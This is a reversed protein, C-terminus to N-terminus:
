ATKTSKAVLPKGQLIAIYKSALERSDIPKSIYDNMGMSLYRERDGSMADATLAIVPVDRWPQDSARIRKITEKGDMVPMHVDLLVIDFPQEALRALAEAGNAAEVITPQMQIMFLKVVQRNVPNDDVLLVRAGFVQRGPSGDSLAPTETEAAPARASGSEAAFTFHFTSGVGPRSEVSVEGGMLRALQRTIALGLGTGGFRRSITADAQTFAGFLRALTEEDMGIGTDTVSVRIMWAGDARSEAGLRISVGGQETFKIANSLLNGVCQRTRVPDYRLLKPFSKPTELTVGIGREQARTVFLQRVREVTLAFDGDIRAIELKGAEIKSIDLVDNLLAMLTQGSESIVNIREKQAETLEDAQLVQAMGLIGNLPTRIEHSMSALFNSKAITAAEAQQKAEVLALEQRKHTDIDLMLGVARVPEGLANRQVRTFIRVWHGDGDPSYIRTDISEVANSRLCRDWSERVRQKEDDHYLGFPDIDQRAMAEPGALAKFQESSWRGTSRMDIEYVGANAASMALELRESVIDAQDRAVALDTVNQSLGFMELRGSPLKRGSRYHVRLTIWSGDGARMRMEGVASGGQTTLRDRIAADKAVDEPHQIKRLIDLPVPKGADQHGLSLESSFTYVQSDPDYRWTGVAADMMLQDRVSRASVLTTLASWETTVDVLVVAIRAGVPTRHLRVWSEQSADSLRFCDAGTSNSRDVSVGRMLEILNVGVLNAPPRNLRKAFAENVEVVRDRADVVCAPAAALVALAFAPTDLLSTSTM